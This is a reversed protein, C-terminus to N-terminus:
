SESPPTKHQKLHERKWEEFESLRLVPTPESATEANERGPKIIFDVGEEPPTLVVEDGPGQAVEAGTPQALAAVEQDQPPPANHTRQALAQRVDDVFIRLDIPKKIYRTAGAEYGRRVDEPSSMATLMIIPLERSEAKSRLLKAIVLGDMDPLMLDLILLDPRTEEIIRMGEIGRTTGIVNYGVLKLFKILLSLTLEEDEIIVITKVVSM